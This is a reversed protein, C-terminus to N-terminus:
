MVCLLCFFLPRPGRGSVLSPGETLRGDPQLYLNYATTNPFYPLTTWYLGTVNRPRCPQCM